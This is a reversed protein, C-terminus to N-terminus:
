KFKNKIFFWYFINVFLNYVLCINVYTLLVKPPLINFFVFKLFKFNPLSAIPTIIHIKINVVDTAVVM